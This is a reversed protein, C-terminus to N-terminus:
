VINFAKYFFLRETVKNFTSVLESRIEPEYERIFSPNLIKIFDDFCSPLKNFADTYSKAKLVQSTIFSGILNKDSELLKVNTAYMAFTQQLEKHLFPLHNFKPSFHLEDNLYKEGRYRFGFPTGSPDGIKIYNELIINKLQKNTNQSFQHVITNLLDQKVEYLTSNMEQRM